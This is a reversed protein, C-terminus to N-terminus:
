DKDGSINLARLMRTIIGTDDPRDPVDFVIERTQVLRQEQPIPRYDGEIRALREDVFFLSVREAAVRKGDDDMTYVYDWREQHFVDVLLPTGMIFRVQSKAMGPHVKNVMDQDVVNGQQVDPRYVASFDAIADPVANAADKVASCSSCLLSASIAWSILLKQM